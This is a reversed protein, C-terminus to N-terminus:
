RQSYYNKINILFNLDNMIIFNCEDVIPYEDTVLFTLNM